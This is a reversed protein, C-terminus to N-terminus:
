QEGVSQGPYVPRYGAYDQCFASQALVATIRNGHCIPQNDEKRFNGFTHLGGGTFFREGPNASYQRLMAADLLPRLALAPNQLLQSCVWSTLPDTKQQMVADIEAPTQRSLDTHLEAIIELYTVLTRLKATSGLELKSGENIDFPLQTTDTQVRVMNGM